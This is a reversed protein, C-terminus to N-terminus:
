KRLKLAIGRRGAAEELRTRLLAIASDRDGGSRQRAEGLIEELDDLPLRNAALCYFGKMRGNDFHGILDRLLSEKASLARLYASLDARASRIDGDVNAYTIFSDKANERVYRGCPFKSCEFCYEVGGNRGACSVVGCSPHKENFGKGGCGPCRSQGDTHYRPCLSCNLGCLSFEPTRMAYPKM